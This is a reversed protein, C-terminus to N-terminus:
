WFNRSRTELPLPMGTSLTCLYAWPLTQVPRLAFSIPKTSSIPKKCSATAAAAFFALILSKLTTSYGLISFVKMSCNTSLQALCCASSPSSVVNFSLIGREALVQRVEGALENNRAMVKERVEITRVAM